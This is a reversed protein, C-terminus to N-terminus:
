PREAPSRASGLSDMFAQDVPEGRAQAVRADRLAEDRRGLAALARSRALHVLGLGPEIQIARDYDAVAHEQSGTAQRALGRWYYARAHHPDFRLFGDYDALADRHRGLVSLANARNLHAEPYDRRAEIAREFDDLAAPYDGRNFHIAGRSNLAIPSKPVIALARGFSVMASDYQGALFYLNGRNTLAEADRPDIELARRLSAAALDYAGQEKYTLALNNHAVGVNPQKRIVDTWLATNDKWITCRHRTALVLASGLGLFLLVVVLRRVASSGALRSFGYGVALGVGAYPLYTYRDAIIARGVPLLQLVLAVTLLYFAGSFTLLPARRRAVTAGVALMAAIVPSAYFVLPLGGSGAAPYPYLASLGVPAVAKSLYAVAGYCAFLVRQYLPYLTIQQIAGKERQAVIAVIGLVVAVMVLPAKEMMTRITVSRGLYWDILVLALPLTVAMAKSLTALSMLALMGAHYAAGFRRRRVAVVHAICAGLYFAGYLLDKRASVWAVSEVHMPHVGFFLAAVTSITPSRSLLLALWFVLLTNLTHLVVNTLHYGRPDLQYLRYDVGLSLMTLPHYNGEVFSSFMTRIGPLTTDRILTNDTVYGSDDWNTFQNDLAPAFAGLTAAGIALAILVTRWRGGAAPAKGSRREVPPPVPTSRAHGPTRRRGRDRPAM